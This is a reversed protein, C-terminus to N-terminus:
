SSSHTARSFASLGASDERRTTDVARGGRLEALIEAAILRSLQPHEGQAGNLEAALSM